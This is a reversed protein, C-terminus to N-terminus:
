CRERGGGESGEEEEVGMTERWRRRIKKRWNGRDRRKQGSLMQEIRRGFALSKKKEEEEKEGRASTVKGEGRRRVKM